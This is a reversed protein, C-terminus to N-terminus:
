WIRRQPVENKLAAANNALSYIKVAALDAAAPNEHHQTREENM